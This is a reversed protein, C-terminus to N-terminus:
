ILTRGNINFHKIFFSKCNTITVHSTAHKRAQSHALAANANLLGVLIICETNIFNFLKCFIFVWLVFLGYMWLKM